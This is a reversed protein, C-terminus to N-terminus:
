RFLPSSLATTLSTWTPSFAGGAQVRHDPVLDQVLEQAEDSVLVVGDEHGAVDGGVQLLVAEPGVRQLRPGPNKGRGPPPPRPPLLVRGAGARHGAQGKPHSARTASRTAKLRLYGMSRTSRVVRSSMMSKTPFPSVFHGSQGATAEDLILLKPRHALAASLSLKMKM